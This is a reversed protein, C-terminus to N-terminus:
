RVQFRYSGSGIEYVMAEGERRLFRVGEATEAPRGGEIVRHNEAAPVYVTASSNAPITVALTVGSRDRTWGSQITGHISPYTARAFTMGEPLYPRIIVKKFGPGAPDPNIGALARYFWASVDGFMIHNRSDTGNWAEWLTTAGQELWHGWSPFTTQATVRYAVDPRGNDRLAHLLYKTGLIGAFVHGDHKDVAAVLNKLVRQEEGKPVLGQYLACSLAAQSGDAYQATEPKFFTRNFADRISDALESYKKADAEKGLLRATDAVIRADVYYYGTSTVETPATPGPAVWDGLGISVIGDKAKTTLYDVYRRMKPYNTELIRTDGYYQYLYWPILLFASDWAPGNGWEYGWGSTPVIGPLEGSERMEDSLDQIWKTYVAAPHYNFIGLEAALHADGTWGNKERHPCDTPISHLNSLYAWRTARQIRNVLESSTELEGAREVASHVVRARLSDLTPKGPFGTVEVYQFGHYTFRPEWVETGDGKLTYEDTQFRQPPDKIMHQAIAARDLTGDPHLREGYRLTIKTGAPGEVRLQAHGAMNQGIDFIFVGPKPETVRVPKLTDTIKIPPMQQASVAGGPAPVVLASQWGRDDYGARDWGAKEERADYSEGGYISDFVVPGTSTKWSEDSVITETRGDTYEIRLETRLRPAARWPARDFYWVAKTHVNHWGTGLMAGVANKGRRLLPTVDYTSYLARRDYRTYGPDLHHDGVKEGNLRLEYYGLGSVYARARKVRGDVNFERRLLPAPQYETERTRGIWEGHWDEPRPLGMEWWAAESWATPKGGDRGWARVKWYARQTAELPKGGYPVQASQDSPVKGSDWLDGRDRRLLEPTSAVLVQYATQREGRRPSTLVWRLRPRATDLGLPNVLYECQLQGVALPPDAAAGAGAALGSALTIGSLLTLLTLSNM